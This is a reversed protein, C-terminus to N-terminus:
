GPERRFTKGRLGSLALTTLPVFLFGLGVGRFILPWFFNVRGSDLTSKSLLYTFLFFSVFGLANMLQPPILRKQLIKGVVPMMIATAIGGPLLILGTQMATFGLLNQAFVPFIFVSSYLGFGLIFTFITGVALSRDRFVRLDVVPHEATM